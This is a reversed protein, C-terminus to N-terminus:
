DKKKPKPSGPAAPDPAAKGNDPKAPAAAGWQLPRDFETEPYPALGRSVRVENVSLWGPGQAGGLSMQAGENRSKLDGREFADRDFQPFRDANPPYLKRALEAEIADLHPGLTYDLFGQNLEQLGKGFAQVKDFINILHPPVHFIRAIDLASFQRSELLQADAANIRLSEYKAGQDLVAPGSFRLDGSFRRRIQERYADAKETGGQLVGPVSIFGDPNTSNKFYASAFRDADIAIGTTLAYATVPSVSYFINWYPSGPIHLVDDQDAQIHVGDDLVLHYLVRRQGNPATYFQIGSRGWPIAWLAVPKAGRREIWVIGNGDGLMSAVVQRWLVVRSYRPNPNAFLRAQDTDTEAEPKARAKSHIPLASIQGAILSVCSWFTSQKRATEHTVADSAPGFLRDWALPDSLPYTSAAGSARISPGFDPEIKELSQAPAARAPWIKELLGM